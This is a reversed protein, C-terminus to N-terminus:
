KCTTRLGNVGVEIFYVNGGHVIMTVNQPTGAISTPAGGKKDVKQIQSTVNFYVSHADVAITPTGPTALVTRESGDLRMREISGSPYYTEAGFFVNSEDVAVGVFEALNSALITLGAVDRAIKGVAGTITGPGSMSLALYVGDIGAVIGRVDSHAPLATVIPASGDIPIQSVALGTDAQYAAYINKGDFAVGGRPNSDVNFSPGMQADAKVAFAGLGNSDSLFYLQGNGLAFGNLEAPGFGPGFGRTPLIPTAAGGALPVSSIQNGDSVYAFGDDISFAQVSGPYLTTVQGAPVTCPADASIPSQIGPSPIGPSQIGPPLSATTADGNSRCGALVVLM